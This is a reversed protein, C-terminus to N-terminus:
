FVKLPLGRKSTKTTSTASSCYVYRGGSNTAIKLVEAEINKWVERQGANGCACVRGLTDKDVLWGRALVGLRRCSNAWSIGGGGGVRVSGSCAGGM